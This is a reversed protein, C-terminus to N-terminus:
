LTVTFVMTRGDESRAAIRGRHANVIAAAISLGIGYGGTDSSRSEDDRYFREFLEDRSGKKCSEVTNKFVLVGGKATARLTVSISGGEDTYKSANDALIGVLKRIAPENGKYSVGPQIATSFHKGTAGAIAAYPEVSESVADSLSFDTMQLRADDEDMRTLSVLDNTLKTLREVQNKISQTWENEGQTMELVETNANIVTLPTKLEHSADTIFHKQKTYSEAVPAIAKKSLLLVLLFVGLIGAGSIWLSTILFSSVSYLSRSIDMFVVLWGGDESARVCYRYDGLSGSGAGTYVQRAYEIAQEETVAAISGTNVSVTEGSEDLIVTFFRTDFQREPSNNPFQPSLGTEPKVAGTQGQPFDPKVQQPFVGGNDSIMNLVTDADSIVGAYNAINLAAMIILLVAAVACMAALVFRKRLKKIM